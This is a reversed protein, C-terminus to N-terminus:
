KAMQFSNQDAGFCDALLEAWTKLGDLILLKDIFSFWTM